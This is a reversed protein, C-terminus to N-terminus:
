GQTELQTLQDKLEVYYNLASEKITGKQITVGASTSFGYLKDIADIRAELELKLTHKAVMEFVQKITKGPAQYMVRIEEARQEIQERITM